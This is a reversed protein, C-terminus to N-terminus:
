TLTEQMLYYRFTESSAGYGAFTGSAAHTIRRMGITLKTSDVLYYIYYNDWGGSNQTWTHLSNNAVLRYLGNTTNYLMVVPPYGLNHTVDVTSVEDSYYPGTRDAFDVTLTADGSSVINFVNNDSNFTLDTNAAEYVDKTPKSVKLGYFGNAGKGLLVRRDGADDKFIQVRDKGEVKKILRNIEAYNNADSNRSSLPLAM